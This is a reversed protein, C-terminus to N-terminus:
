NAKYQESWRSYLNRRVSAGLLNTMEAHSDISLL